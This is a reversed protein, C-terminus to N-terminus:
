ALKLSCQLFDQAENQSIGKILSIEDTLFKTANKLLQNESTNLPHQSKIQTLTCVVEILDTLAGSKIKNSNIEIRDKTNIDDLSNSSAQYKDIDELIDNLTGSDSILRINSSEVRTSPLMLKMTNNILHINYYKQLKGQFEKEEIFDIIGVGQVPYVIKDGINFM